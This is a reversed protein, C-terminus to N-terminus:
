RLCITKGLIRFQISVICAIFIFVLLVDSSLKSKFWCRQILVEIAVIDMRNEIM